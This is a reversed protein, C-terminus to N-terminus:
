KANKNTLDHDLHKLYTQEFKSIEWVKVGESDCAMVLKEMAIM